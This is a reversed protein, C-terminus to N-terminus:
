DGFYRQRQKDKIKNVDLIIFSDVCDSFEADINYACFKVGDENCLDAYQKYMTPVSLELFSLAKKLTKFDKKYDNLVLEAQFTKMYEDNFDFIYPIKAIALEKKVSFYTSYFYLIMDKAVKPYSQSISVAGYLYKIQPNSKLYAGIGQWLYDLARSGWYKPQVFSRGLEISNDLYKNFNETYQFLSNTYLAEENYSTIIDSTIGIRYAGVIELDENDWLVIHKYYRDYKDIDRSKNVGEGVQRFSIERLRGIENLVSSNNQLCEYLYIKKGDKTSGLLKSNKLEKKIERRDEAHAIAKQTVFYSVKKKLSYLHKKYLSILKDKPISHPHTNEHPIIEGITLEIENGRQKFMEHSLLITSLPKSLASVSYFTKSNKGGILIPLIPSSTRSAFKLFSKHWHGDKVGKPTARSVEGAPFIILAEESNLADYIKNISHKSQRSQFNNIDIIIPSLPKIANLFDNAVIKIDKRVTSIAKILALADLGGLPHNSIIVVRGTAPINQIDKNSLSYTFDLTELASEIFEFSGLHINEELFRNIEEQHVIADAFKNIAGKIIKNDKLKPYKEKIMMQVNIM